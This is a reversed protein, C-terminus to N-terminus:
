GHQEIHFFGEDSEVVERGPAQLILGERMDFWFVPLYHLICFLFVGRGWEGGCLFLYYLFYKTNEEVVAACDVACHEGGKAGNGGLLCGGVSFVM